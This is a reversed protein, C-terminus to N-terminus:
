VSSSKRGSVINWQSSQLFKNLSAITEDDEGMSKLLKALEWTERKYTKKMVRMAEQISQSTEEQLLKIRTDQLTELQEEKDNRSEKMNGDSEQQKANYGPHNIWYQYGYSVFLEEGQQIDRATVVVQFPGIGPLPILYVNQQSLSSELYQDQKTQMMTSSADNIYCGYWGTPITTQTPHVDLVLQIQHADPFTDQIFFENGEGYHLPLNPLSSNLRYSSANTTTAAKTANKLVMQAAISVNKDITIIHSYLDHIPYFAVITYQPINRTAFVGHGASPITSTGLRCNKQCTQLLTHLSSSSSSSSTINSHMLFHIRQLTEEMVQQLLNYNQEEPNYVVLKNSNSGIENQLSSSVKSSARSKSTVHNGDKKDNQFRKKCSSPPLYKLFARSPTLMMTIIMVHLLVLRLERCGLPLRSYANHDRQKPLM